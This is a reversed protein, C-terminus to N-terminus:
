ESKEQFHEDVRFDRKKPDWRLPSNAFIRSYSKQNDQIPGYDIKRCFRQNAILDHIKQKSNVTDESKMGAPMNPLIKSPSTNYNPTEFSEHVLM